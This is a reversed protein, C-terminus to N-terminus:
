FFSAGRNAAGAEHRLKSFLDRGLSLTQWAAEVPRQAPTRAALAEDSLHVFLQGQESDVTILDGDQLRALAGGAVAEPCVHIAAPVKGSAGSMRGDTVLAVKYGQDLLTGLSPTLQHLEPMGNAGPGQFRVVAIFDRALEGCEFAQKLATQSDFILCPATIIRHEPKVASIKCISEGLNGTLCRLGGETSFPNDQPRVVDPMIINTDLSVWELRNDASLVPHQEYAAMGEGMLTVVDENLLGARRLERTIFATGGAQQFANVDADGNPYIKALLPTVASLRDLDQWRMDIGASQAIALLHLTHNTSGGTALLAVAANVLSAETVMAMLPQHKGSAADNHNMLSAALVRNVAERTLAERLESHPHVFSAGPLQIGLMEVMVQNSNATGYFTCTGPSHYSASEVALLQENNVLGQAHRQRVMAKEKNPIGSAMPGAPIFATPLHGFKLAGILMGPVIKDCVGLCVVADFTNHSLSIATAMAIVERSFLSLEMGPQGQTVGDCMAPVGGAVQATAQRLAAAHKIIDPYFQLPQHASLMDNYSTVIGLNPAEMAAILQKEHSSCAAFAHALNGCSLRKRPPLHQRTDRMLTLYDQRSQRSRQRITHTVQEVTVNIM